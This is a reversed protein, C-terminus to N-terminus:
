KSIESRQADFWSFGPTRKDSWWGGPQWQVHQTSSCIDHSGTLLRALAHTISILSLGGGVWGGGMDYYWLVEPCHAATTNCKACASATTVDSFTVKVQDDSKQHWYSCVCKTVWSATFNSTQLVMQRESSKLSWNSFASFRVQDTYFCACICTTISYRM